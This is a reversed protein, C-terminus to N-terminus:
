ADQHMIICGQSNCCYQMVILRVVVAIEQMLIVLVGTCGTALLRGDTSFSVSFVRDEHQLPSGIPQSNELNWLRATKDWSASALIRGNLSIAIGWVSDTHGTVVAIQQWTTTNWTRITDDNSRSILKKGDATWGLCNVQMSHGKLNAALKGTKVDWIKLYEEYKFGGTAIMTTDPLYIVARV